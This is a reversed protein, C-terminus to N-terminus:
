DIEEFERLDRIPANPLRIRNLDIIEGDVVIEIEIRARYSLAPVDSNPLKISPDWPVWRVKGAQNRQLTVYEPLEGNELMIGEPWPPGVPLDRGTDVQVLESVPARIRIKAVQDGHASRITLPGGPTRLQLITPWIREFSDRNTFQITYISERRANVVMTTTALARFPELTAPWDNPWDGSKSVLTVAFTPGTAFGLLVFLVPGITANRM